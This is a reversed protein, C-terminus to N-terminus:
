SKKTPKLTDIKSEIADLRTALKDLKEIIEAKSVPLISDLEIKTGITDEIKQGIADSIQHFQEQIQDQLHEAQKKPDKISDMVIKPTASAVKKWFDFSKALIGKQMEDPKDEVAKLTMSTLKKRVFTEADEYNSFRAEDGSQVHRINGRWEIQHDGTETEFIKQSLRLVFSATEEKKAM